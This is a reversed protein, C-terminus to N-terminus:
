KRFEERTTNFVRMVLLEVPQGGWTVTIAAAPHHGLQCLPVFILRLVGLLYLFPFHSSLTPVLPPTIVFRVYNQM